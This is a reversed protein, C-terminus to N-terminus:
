STTEADSKEATPLRVAIAAANLATQPSISLDTLRMNQRFEACLEGALKPDISLSQRAEALADFAGEQLARRFAVEDLRDDYYSLLTACFYLYNGFEFCLGALRREEDSPKDALMPPASVFLTAQEDLLAPTPQRAQVRNVAVLFNSTYNTDLRKASHIIARCKRRLDDVVLSATLAHLSRDPSDSALLYLTRCSRIVDRPLGGALVHCLCAFPLPLQAMRRRLLRIAQNADLYGVHVVEDFSSDFVDRVPLGRREFSALASESISVLYFCGELGFLVKNDNLFREAEEDSKLKDLEDIGIILTYERTVRRVFASYRDIIEPLSAQREAFTQAENATAAVGIPLTLTGSWGATFSRQFQIVELHKRTEIVLDSAAYSDRESHSRHINIMIRNLIEGMLWLAFGAVIFIGLNLGLTRKLQAFVDIFQNLGITPWLITTARLALLCTGITIIAAGLMLITRRYPLLASLLPHIRPSPSPATRTPADQQDGKAALVTHCLTAFLHLVFDRAEYRAPAPTAFALVPLGRPKWDRDSRRCFYNILTSKGAGRPGSIGISGGSMASFLQEMQERANTHTDFWPDFVEGLPAATGEPLELAYSPSIERELIALGASVLLRDRVTSAIEDDYSRLQISATEAQAELDTKKAAAEKRKRRGSVVPWRVYRAARITAAMVGIAAVPGLFRWDVILTAIPLGVVFHATVVVVASVVALALLFCLLVRTLSYGEVEQDLRYTQRQLEWIESQLQDAKAAIESIALSIAQKLNRERLIARVIDPKTFGAKTLQPRILTREVSAEALTQLSNPALVSDLRAM